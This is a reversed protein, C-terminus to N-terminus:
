SFPRPKSPSAPTRPSPKEGLYVVRAEHVKFGENRDMVIWELKWPDFEKVLEVVVEPDFAACSYLDFNFIAFDLKDWVHLSCHSTEINCSATIGENEDAKCYHAHPGIVLKMGVAEVVKRLWRVVNEEDGAKPPNRVIANLIM